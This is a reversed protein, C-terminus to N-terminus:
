GNSDYEGAVYGDNWYATMCVLFEEKSIYDTVSWLYEAALDPDNSLDELFNRIHVTDLPLAEKTHSM